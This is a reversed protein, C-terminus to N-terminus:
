DVNTSVVTPGKSGRAITVVMSTWQPFQIVANYLGQLISAKVTPLAVEVDDPLNVVIHILHENHMTETAFSSM